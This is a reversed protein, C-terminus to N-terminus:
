CPILMKSTLSTIISVYRQIRMGKGKREGHLTGGVLTQTKLETIVKMGAEAEIVEEAAGNIEQGLYNTPSM